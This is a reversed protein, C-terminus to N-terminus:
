RIARRVPFFDGARMTPADFFTVVVNRDAVLPWEKKAKGFTVIFLALLGWNAVGVIMPTYAIWEWGVESGSLVAIVGFPVLWFSVVIFAILPAYAWPIRPKEDKQDPEITM